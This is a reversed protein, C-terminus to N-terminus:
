EDGSKKTNSTDSDNVSKKASQQAKVLKKQDETLEDDSIVTMIKGDGHKIFM